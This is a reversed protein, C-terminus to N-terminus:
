QSVVGWAVDEYSELFDQSFYWGLESKGQLHYGFFAAAFHAIIKEYKTEFIMMHDKGVISVFSKQPSGLHKFILVNEGYLEDKTAALVLMPKQVDALGKEGWLWWGEGAMPMVARIREDSIPQWLGDKSQTIASDVGTEFNKWDKLPNCSFASLGHGLISKTKEDPKECQQKFYVPDLRAGSLMYANFGDFSYGIVGTHEADIMGQLEVPPNDAAQNLAFLIDLPQEYIEEEMKWYSDIIDVSVWTFGHSVLYPAWIESVKTSSIILPYPGGSADLPTDLVTSKKNPDAPQEAPYYIRLSVKKNNRSADEASFTRVGVAYQGKESLPYPNAELTPRPGFTAKPLPTPVPTTSSACASLVFMALLSAACVKSYM